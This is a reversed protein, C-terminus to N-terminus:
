AELLTRWADPVAVPTNREYDYAVLVSTAEAVVRDGSRLLYDLVFSTRGVRGPNVEVDITEGLGVAARFDIAIRAVIMATVDVDARALFAIRAEELYTLYVANNVHGVSDIDRFRVTERHVFPV